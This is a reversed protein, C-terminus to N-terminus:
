EAVRRMHLPSILGADQFYSFMQVAADKSEIQGSMWVTKGGRNKCFEGPLSNANVVGEVKERREPKTAGIIVVISQKNLQRCGGPEAPPQMFAVQQEKGVPQDSIITAMAKHTLHNGVAACGILFASGLIIKIM